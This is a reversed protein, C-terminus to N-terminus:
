SLVDDIIFKATVVPVNIIYVYMYNGGLYDTVELSVFAEAWHAPRM